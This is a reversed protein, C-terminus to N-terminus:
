CRKRRRPRPQTHPRQQRPLHDCARRRDNILWRRPIGAGRRGVLVASGWWWGCQRQVVRPVAPPLLLRHRSCWAGCAHARASRALMGYATAGGFVLVAGMWHWVTFTNSFAVISLLLSLFKRVTLVVNVTLPDAIPTLNYVGLICCYQSAVNIAVYVWMIPVSSLLPISAVTSAVGRVVGWSWVGQGGATAAAVITHLPASESWLVFRGVLSPLLVLFLPLALVHQFFMAEEPAKGYRKALLNQRHGLVTQLVLVSLLICVGVSWILMYQGDGSAGPAPAAAGPAVAAPAPAPVAAGLQRGQQQGGATMQQMAGAVTAVVSQMLPQLADLAPGLSPPGAVTPCGAAGACDLSVSPTSAAIPLPAPLPLPLPMPVAGAGSSMAEGVAALARTPGGAGPAATAVLAVTAAASAAAAAKATDGVFAEAVTASLAGLTLAM